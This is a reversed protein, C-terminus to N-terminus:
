SFPIRIVSEECNRLHMVLKKGWTTMKRAEMVTGEYASGCHEKLNEWFAMAPDNTQGFSNLGALLLSLVFLIRTM